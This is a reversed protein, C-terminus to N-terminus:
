VGKREGSRREYATRIAERVIRSVAGGNKRLAAAGRADEPSVRVSSLKV